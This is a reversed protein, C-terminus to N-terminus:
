EFTDSWVKIPDSVMKPWVERCNILEGKSVQEAGELPTGSLRINLTSLELWGDTWLDPIRIGTLASIQSSIDVEGAGM